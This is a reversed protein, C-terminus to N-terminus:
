DIYSNRLKNLEKLLLQLDRGSFPKINIQFSTDGSKTIIAIRPAVISQNLINKKIWLKKIDLIESLSVKSLRFLGDRYTIFEHNVTIKFGSLWICWLFAIGLTISFVIIAESALKEETSRFFIIINLVAILLWPTTLVIYGSVSARLTISNICTDM